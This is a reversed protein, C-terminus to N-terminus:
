KQAEFLTTISAWLDTRKSDPCQAVLRAAQKMLRAVLADDTTAKGISSVDIERGDAAERTAGESIVNSTTSSRLKSVFPQSVKAHQAIWNDSRRVWAPDALLANVAKRKDASTRARGHEANAGAAYLLADKRSGSRVDALVDLHTGHERAAVRHFGDALWLVGKSDRFVVVPAFTDGREMSAAYDLVLRRNIGTARFLLEPDRRIDALLVLHQGESPEELEVAASM